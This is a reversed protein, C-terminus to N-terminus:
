RVLEGNKFLRGDSRLQKYFEQMAKALLHRFEMPKGVYKKKIDDLMKIGVADTAYKTGPIPYRM